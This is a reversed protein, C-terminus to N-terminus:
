LKWNKPPPNKVAFDALLWLACLLLLPIIIALTVSEPRRPMLIVINRDRDSGNARNSAGKL